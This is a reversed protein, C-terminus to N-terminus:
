PGRSRPGLPTASELYYGQDTLSRRVRPEVDGIFNGQSSVVEVIEELSTM